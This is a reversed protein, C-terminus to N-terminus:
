SDAQWYLPCQNSGQDLFIECAVSCSLGQVVVVSGAQRPAGERCCSFCSYYSVQVGCGSLVEREDCSLCAQM